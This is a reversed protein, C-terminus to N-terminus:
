CWKGGSPSRSCADGGSTPHPLPCNGITSMKASLRLSFLLKRAHVHAHMHFHSWLHEFAVNLRIEQWSSNIQGPGLAEVQALGFHRSKDLASLVPTCTNFCCPSVKDVPMVMHGKKQILSIFSEKEKSASMQFKATDVSDSYGLMYVQLLSSVTLLLLSLEEHQPQVTLKGM